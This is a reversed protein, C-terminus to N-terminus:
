SLKLKFENSYSADSASFKATEIRRVVKGNRRRHAFYRLLM